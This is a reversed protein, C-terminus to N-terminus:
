EPMEVQGGAPRESRARSLELEPVNDKSDIPPYIRYAVTLDYAM